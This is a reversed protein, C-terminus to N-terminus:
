LTKSQVTEGADGPLSITFFLNEGGDSILGRSGATFGSFGSMIGNYLESGGSTTGVKLLFSNFLNDDGDTKAVSGNYVLPLTGGNHIFVQKTISDGAKFDSFNFIPTTQIGATDPDSDVHLVVTGAKLINGKNISQASFAAFASATTFITALGISILSKLIKQGSFFGGKPPVPRKTKIKFSRLPLLIM